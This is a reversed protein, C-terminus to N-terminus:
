GVRIAGCRLSRAARLRHRGARREPVAPGRWGPWWASRCGRRPPVVASSRRAPGDGRRVSRCLAGDDGDPRGVVAAVAGSRASATTVDSRSLVRRPPRGLAPLVGCLRRPPRVRCRAARRRQRDPRPGRRPARARVRDPNRRRPCDRGRGPGGGARRVGGNRGRGRGSGGRRAGHPRRRGPRRRLPPRTPRLRAAGAASNHAASLARGGRRRRGRVRGRAGGNLRVCGRGWPRVRSGGPGWPHVRVCRLRRGCVCASVRFSTARRRSRRGPEGDPRVRDTGGGCSPTATWGPPEHPSRRAHGGGTPSGRVLQPRRRLQGCGISAGASRLASRLGM